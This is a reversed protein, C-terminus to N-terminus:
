DTEYFLTSYMNECLKTFFNMKLSAEKNQLSCKDWNKLNFAQVLICQSAKHNYQASLVHCVLSTTEYLIKLHCICNLISNIYSMSVRDKVLTEELIWVIAVTWIKHLFFFTRVGFYYPDGTFIAIFINYM